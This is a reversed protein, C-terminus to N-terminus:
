FIPNINTGKCDFAEWETTLSAFDNAADLDAFKFDGNNEMCFQLGQRDPSIGDWVVDPTGFPFKMMFLLGFDNKTTPFWHGNNFVNSHVYMGNPYPDYKEDQQATEINDNLQSDGETSLTSVLDYSAIALGATRNDIFENGFIEIDRTALLMMGTGPPVTAVINGEPAFNRYNNKEMINNFVRTTHGLQTLGPLDFVLIGGTNQYAENHHIEVWRSNESEIGAVNHYVKNYRITVSDSQGVYIGADSAGAAICNQIVVNKCLVPYFAYAGNTEEPEGTWHSKVGNFEIGYTDTAKINDGPADEITFDMLRINSCNSIKFAEAGEEQQAFSLVTKDAGAGVITIFHKDDLLLSKTFMFHGEPLRVESSDNMTILQTQLSKEISQWTINDPTTACGFLMMAGIFFTLWKM